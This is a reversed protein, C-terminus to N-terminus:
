RMGRGLIDKGWTEGMWLGTLYTVLHQVKFITTHMLQYAAQKRWLM